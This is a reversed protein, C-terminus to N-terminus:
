PSRRHPADGGGLARRRSQGADISNVTRKTHLPQRRARPACARHEARRRRALARAARRERARARQRAVLVGQAGCARGASVAPPALSRAAVFRATLAAIDGPRERLPAIRLPFVSLRYYLDERFAGERVAQELDRNGTALVRVDLAVPKSAGLPEVEREQLVRLLKAQLGLEMETVEDLLLTGGNAQMFKGVSRAQAGTFAGKEHGFLLAELMQEPIAACNVAVFPGAARKSRNHIFRALVEKGTGSEGNLLVTVDSQAVRAALELLKRSAPDEAVAEARRLRTAHPLAVARTARM